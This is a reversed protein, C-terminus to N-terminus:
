PSSWNRRGCRDSQAAFFMLCWGVSKGWDSGGMRSRIAKARITSPELEPAFLRIMADVHMLDARFQGLQQEM